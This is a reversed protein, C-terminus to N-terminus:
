ILISGGEIYCGSKVNKIMVCMIVDLNIGGYEFFFIDEVM